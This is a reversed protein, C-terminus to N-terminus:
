YENVTFFQVRVTIDCIIHIHIARKALFCYLQIGGSIPLVSLKYNSFDSFKGHISLQM